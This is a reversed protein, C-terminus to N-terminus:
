TKLVAKGQGSNSNHDICDWTITIILLELVEIIELDRLIKYM